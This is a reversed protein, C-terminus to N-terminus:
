AASQIESRDDEEEERLRMEERLAADKQQLACHIATLIESATTLRRDSVAVVDDLGLGRFEYPHMGGVAIAHKYVEVVGMDGGLWAATFAISHEPVLGKSVLDADEFLSPTRQTHDVRAEIM